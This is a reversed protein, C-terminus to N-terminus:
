FNTAQETHRIVDLHVEGEDPDTKISEWLIATLGATSQCSKGALNAFETGSAAM